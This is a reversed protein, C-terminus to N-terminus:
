SLIYCIKQKLNQLQDKSKGAKYSNIYGFLEQQSVEKFEMSSRSEFSM